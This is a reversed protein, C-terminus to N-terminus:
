LKRRPSCEMKMGRGSTAPRGKGEVAKRDASRRRAWWGPKSAPLVDDIAPRGAAPSPATKGGGSSSSPEVTRRQARGDDSRSPVDGPVSRERASSGMVKEPSGQAWRSARGRRAADIHWSADPESSELSDRGRSAGVAVHWGPAGGALQQSAMIRCRCLDRRRGPQDCRAEGAILLSWAGMATISAPM